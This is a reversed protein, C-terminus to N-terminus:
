HRRNRRKLKPIISNGSSLSRARAKANLVERLDGIEESEVDTFPDERLFLSIDSDSDDTDNIVGVMQPKSRSSTGNTVVSSSEGHNPEDNAANVHVIIKNERPLKLVENDLDRVNIELFCNQVNLNCYNLCVRSSCTM